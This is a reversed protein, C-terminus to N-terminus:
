GGGNTPSVFADSIAQYFATTYKSWEKKPVKRFLKKADEVSVAEGNGNVVFHIMKDYLEKNTLTDFNLWEDISFHEDFGEITIKIKIVQEDM